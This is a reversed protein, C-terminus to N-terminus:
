SPNPQSPVSAKIGLMSSIEEQPIKPFMMSIIIQAAQPTVNGSKVESLIGMLEKIQGAAFAQDSIPEPPPAPTQPAPQIAKGIDDGKQKVIQMFDALRNTIEPDEGAAVLINIRTSVENYLMNLDVTSYFSTKNDFIVNDIIKQCADYSSTAINMMEEQDPLDIAHAADAPSIVKMSVLKEMQEMKVKPDRSLWAVPDTDMSFLDQQKRIDKWKIDVARGVIKPLIDANDPMVKICCKAVDMLFKIHHDLPTQHRESEVDEVTQLAVGSNLGSPKKAQASLQSVGVMNYAHQELFELWAQYQPDIFRPTSVVIPTGNQVLTPDYPVMLGIRNDFQSAKLNNGSQNSQPYFITNAPNMEAATMIRETIRNMAGQIYMLQDALGSSWWGKIPNAIHYLSVPITKYDVPRKRVVKGNIIMYQNGDDLNYYLELKDVTASPDAKLRERLESPFRDLLKNKIYEVPYRDFTLTMRTLEGYHYQAPDCYFQWPRVRILKNSEDDIWLCGYDFLAADRLCDVAKDFIQEKNFWIDFFNQAAKAVRRTEALGNIPSFYPRVKMQAMKSVFTDVASRVVNLSPYSGVDNEQSNKFYYSTPLSYIERITGTRAGQNEYVNYLRRYKTDRIDLKNHMFNIDQLIKDNTM